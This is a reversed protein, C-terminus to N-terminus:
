SGLVLWCTYNKCEKINQKIKEEVQFSRTKVRLQMRSYFDRQFILFTLGTPCVQNEWPVQRRTVGTRWDRYLAATLVLGSARPEGCQAWTTEVSDEHQRWTTGVQDACGWPGWMTVMHDGCGQPGWTTEVNEEHQGGHPRWMGTTGVNNGYQRWITRMNDGHQRWTTGVDGHDGHQRWMTRVNDEHQGVDWHDGCQGCTTEMNDGHPRWTTGVDGHDGHQRWMTKMNDGHPRSTTGMHDGCGRPGWTTEM